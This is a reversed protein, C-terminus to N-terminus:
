PYRGSARERAETELHRRRTRVAAFRLLSHLMRRNVMTRPLRNRTIAREAATDVAACFCAVSDAALGCTTRSQFAVATAVVIAAPFDWGSDPSYTPRVCAAM